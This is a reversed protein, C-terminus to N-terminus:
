KRETVSMVMLVMGGPSAGTGPSGGPPKYHRQGRIELYIGLFKSITFFIIVGGGFIM